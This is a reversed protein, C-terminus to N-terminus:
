EEENTDTGTDDPESTEYGCAPCVYVHDDYAMTVRECEPCLYQSLHQVHGSRTIVAGHPGYHDLTDIRDGEEHHGAMIKDLHMRARRTCFMQCEGESLEYEPVDEPLVESLKEPKGCFVLLWLSREPDSARWVSFDGTGVSGKEARDFAAKSSVGDPYLFARVSWILDPGIAVDPM